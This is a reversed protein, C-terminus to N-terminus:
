IVYVSLLFVAFILNLVILIAVGDGGLLGLVNVWQGGDVVGGDLVLFEGLVEVLLVLINSGKGGGLNM